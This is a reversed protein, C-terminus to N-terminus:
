LRHHNNPDPSSYQAHPRGHASCAGRQWTTAAQAGKRGAWDAWRQATAKAHHCCTALPPNQHREAPARHRKCPSRVPHTCRRTAEGPIQSLSSGTNLHSAAPAATTTAKGIASSNRTLAPATGLAALVPTAPLGDASATDSM